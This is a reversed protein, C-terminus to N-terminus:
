PAIVLNNQIRVVGPARGAADEAERSEAYSRVTGDLTVLGDQDTVTIGDADVAASRTLSDRIGSSVDQAPHRSVTVDDTYGRLGRLHMVVHEAAQKQYYHRVNGTMIVWGDTVTVSVAGTPVLGNADLAARAGAALDADLVERAALDVVLDNQVHRVGAVGWAREEAAMREYYTDVLGTLVVTGDDATANIRSADIRTDWLVEDLVDHALGADTVTTTTETM